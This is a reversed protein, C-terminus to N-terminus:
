AAHKSADLVQRLARQLDPAVFPKAVFREGVGYPPPTESVRAAASAAASPEPEAYGSVYVVPLDPRERRLAAALERGGLEPMRLDTLLVDIKGAAGGQERWVLLADAGHRAEFVTYGARELIRRAVGRVAAEDEVLLVTERGHPAALASEAGTPREASEAAWPLLVVFASGHGPESEVRVAGGSQTVIGYVMALGLGTGQGLPKTTFFPEFVHRRTAEDMGVGTDRVAICAYRGVPIGLRAAADPALTTAGTEVTIAAVGVTQCQAVADRANLVLNVLVQELQVADACVPLPHPAVSVAFAVREGVLRRLLREADTVVVNLDLLRSEMVQRRSFALLQKTLQSARLAAGRMVDLDTHARHGRPLDGRVLDLTSLIVTLLNNFDHAVGGALLGLSEIRQAHRAQEALRDREAAAADQETLDRAVCAVAALEGTDPDRVAFDYSQVHVPPRGDIPRLHYEGKWTATGQVLTRWAQEVRERDADVVFERFSRGRVADLDPAGILRLGAPNLYTLCGDPSLLKVVDSSAEVTRALIDRSEAAQRRATVDTHTGALRLPAGAADREVVRGRSLIWRWSGDAHQMRHESEYSVTRGDVHDRMAARMRALDAPHVLAHWEGIDGGFQEPTRGLMACFQRDVWLRGTRLDWDWFGQQAGELALRTESRRASAYLRANWVAQAVLNGLEASLAIEAESPVHPATSILSMAGIARGRARLPVVLVDRPHFRRLLELQEPTRAVRRYHTEDLNQLLVPEGAALRRARPPDLAGAPFRALYGRVVTDTAPDFATAMVARRPPEDDSDGRELDLVCIDAFRPVVLHGVAALVDDLHLSSALATSADAILRLAEAPTPSSAPPVVAGNTDSPARRPPPRRLADRPESTTPLARPRDVDETPGGTAAPPNTPQAPPPSTSAKTNPQRM